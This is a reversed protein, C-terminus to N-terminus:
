CKLNEPQVDDEREKLVSFDEQQDVEDRSNSVSYEAPEDVDDDDTSSASLDKRSISKGPSVLLRRKLGRISCIPSGFWKNQIITMFTETWLHRNDDASNDNRCSSDISTNPRNISPTMNVPALVRDLSKTEDCTYIGTAKFGVIINKRSDIENLCKKLLKPIVNKNRMKWAELNKKWKM